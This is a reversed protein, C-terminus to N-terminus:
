VAPFQKSPIASSLSLHLLTNLRSPLHPQNDDKTICAILVDGVSWGTPISIQISSGGGPKVETKAVFEVAM